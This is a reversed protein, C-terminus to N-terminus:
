TQGDLTTVIGVYDLEFIDEPNAGDILGNTMISEEFDDRGLRNVTQKKLSIDDLDNLKDNKKIVTNLQEEKRMEKKGNWGKMSKGSFYSRKRKSRKRKIM